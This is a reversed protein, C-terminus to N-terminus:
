KHRGLVSFTHMDLESFLFSYKIVEAPSLQYFRSALFKPCFLVSTAPGDPGQDFTFTSDEYMGLETFYQIYVGFYFIFYFSYNFVQM